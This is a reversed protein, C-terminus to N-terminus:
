LIKLMLRTAHSTVTVTQYKSCDKTSGKQSTPHLNVNEQGTVMSLKGFKSVYQNCCKLLM